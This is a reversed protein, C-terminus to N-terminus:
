YKLLYYDNNKFVVEYKLNQIYKLDDKFLVSYGKTTSMKKVFKDISYFYNIKKNSYFVACPNGGYLFTTNTRFEMPLIAEATRESEWVLYNIEKTDLSQTKIFIEDRPAIVRNSDFIRMKQNIMLLSLVSLVVVILIYLYKKYEWRLFEIIKELCIAIAITIFPYIPLAYWAIRTRVTTISILPIIVLLLILVFIENKKIHSWINKKWFFVPIMLGSLLWINFDRLIM